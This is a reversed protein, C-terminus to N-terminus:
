SSNAWQPLFSSISCPHISAPPPVSLTCIGTKQTHLWLQQESSPYCCADKPTLLLFIYLSPLWSSFPLLSLTLAIFILILFLKSYGNNEKMFWIIDKNPASFLLLTPHFFPFDFSETINFVIHSQLLGLEVTFCSLIFIM